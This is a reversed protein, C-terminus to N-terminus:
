IRSTISVELHWYATGLTSHYRADLPGCERRVALLHTVADIVQGVRLHILMHYAVEAYRHLRGIAADVVESGIHEAVLDAVDSVWYLGQLEKVLSPTDPLGGRGGLQEGLKVINDDSPRAGRYMWADVTHDDVGVKGALRELFLGAQQRKQNLYSGRTAHDLLELAEPSSRALHLHAALRIALDIAALRVYAEWVSSLHSPM